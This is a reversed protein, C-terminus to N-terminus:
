DQRPAFVERQEGVQREERFARCGSLM